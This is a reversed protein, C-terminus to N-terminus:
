GRLYRPKKPHPIEHIKVPRLEEQRKVAPGNTAVLVAENKPLVEVPWWSTADYGPSSWHNLERRADYSEGILLDAELIPGQTVRWSGDSVISTKSGDPHTLVIQALFRPRDAYHQRGLWAIYGVGWGDALIAGFVNRGPHILETVDYAQYQIRRSYDTWGPTLFSEGVQLGNIHCEYLSVATAYLRAAVFKRRITFEKRIYPAPSSTRPGGWFPARIWQAEWDAPELLGMEWWAPPSDTRRGGEDWVRAKWHVRQGSALAPGDYPVHISQDSEIKGSDWLLGPSDELGPETSAALVQYATQRAGRRGSQMQWSLRPRVVDIGLPNTRYECTLHSIKTSSM